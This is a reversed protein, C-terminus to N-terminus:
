DNSPNYTGAIYGILCCLLLTAVGSAIAIVAHKRGYLTLPTNTQLLALVGLIAGVPGGLLPLFALVYGFGALANGSDGTAAALGVMLAALLMLAVSGLGTWRAVNALRTTPPQTGPEGYPQSGPQMYPTSAPRAYTAQPQALTQGTMPAQGTSGLLAQRFDAITAFRRDPDSDTARALADSLTPPM